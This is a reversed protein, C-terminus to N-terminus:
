SYGIKDHTFNSFGTQKFPMQEGIYSFYYKKYRISSGYTGMFNFLIAPLTLKNLSLPLSVM